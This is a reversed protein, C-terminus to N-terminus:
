AAETIALAAELPIGRGLAGTQWVRVRVESAAGGLDAAQEAATWVYRPAELAEVARLVAGGADLIELDFREADEALPVTALSWSDASLDRSRRTWRLELDGGALRRARPHVPAFPLLGRATPTFTEAHAFPDAPGKEPWGVRLNWAVGTEGLSFPLPAIRDDLVVVRSGAPAPDAMAAETGRQGRLLRSLRYRGPSVLEAEAAQVIEWAGGAGEVAFANGGALVELDSLSGLTGDLFEVDLVAGRDWRWLPGAALPAVLVGIQAPAEALAFLEFGDQVPSRWVAAVGRWPDARVALYPAAPDVASSLQPLNMTVALPEGYGVPRPLSAIRAAGPAIMDFGASAGVAEVERQLGDAVRLLRFRMERGERELAIVDGPDLALLSPPLSAAFQERGAWAELLARRCRREAEDPASALAFREVSVQESQGVIRAAEVTAGDYAEDARAITWRLVGPLETEQGRTIELVDGDVEDAAVLGDLAIRAVPDSGREVFRLKGGSEVADFGFFRALRGLSARPSEVATIVFGDCCQWLESVDLFDGHICDASAIQRVMARLDAAGARGTLWHGLRWNERDSWISAQAPFEPFPRADWTWLACEGLDLMPGGYVDSQPNNDRWYGLAAELFARQMADDRWGRSFYPLRGDASKPDYFANPENAGRDVAACGIETFRVPKSRPVWATPTSSEVGGPRDFHQNSWWSRIDKPRFVWPKGYAGDEVPTRVQADRDAASAYFWDFREGGEVNARLYERQHTHAWGARADAHDSGDRWDALPVYNDIGLFDVNADAWFPDLHFFVDGSGDGPQHGFYETWDAAYSLATGAGLIGRVDSALSRLVAVAPFSAAGDRISTVGRLETGVLFADVGGAAACLHAYHLVMRRLGEDSASGQWTVREGSVSFDGPAASGFFAAVQAGAAATGDVSGAHGAAPSCTIRGRWPYEPQGVESANDSYPNPLSNGPAVDMLLFPYFTVRYGRAKLLRIAQVVSADAPTGGYAPGDEIRSVLYASGREIGSVRWSLPKTTKESFEVGPVIRCEGARLDTGFWSVVLTVSEVGPLCAELRDLSVELDTFGSGTNANESESAGSGSSRVEETALVFEGASPILTVARAMGELNDECPLARFVEVSIQPLRNSFEGLALDEFVLYAVGRYAPAEGGMCAAIFPDPGQEEDGLYLRWTVAAMDLLKGDAWVRGIGTIPGECLALAFSAFYSYTTTKVGGGGGKGGGSKKTNKEERFDTAWIITGGLRMRGYLRPIVSGESSSTVRLNDLRPGEVSQTPALSQVMWSDVMSGAFSGLAGGITTASIGLLTGGISSGIAAGASALLISAM